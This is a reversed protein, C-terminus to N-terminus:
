INFPIDNLLWTFGYPKIQINDVEKFENTFNHYAKFKGRSIILMGNKEEARVPINPHLDSISKRLKIMNFLNARVQEKHKPLNLSNFRRRHLTRSTKTKYFSDYDNEDIMLNNFYFAPIGPLTLLVSHFLLFQDFMYKKDLLSLLTSNIEYVESNGKNNRFTFQAGRSKALEIIKNIEEDNLIGKVPPIPFGDHTSIVNLFYKDRIIKNLDNIWYSIKKANQNFLTHFLLLPLSVNYVIDSGYNLFKINEKFPVITETLLYVHPAIRDFIKRLLSVFLFTEEINLCSSNEKKWVYGIADLRLIEAGHQIYHLAVEIMEKLVMPNRYNLDVQRDSFTTWVDVPPNGNFSYTHFLPSSRPRFVHSWPHKNTSTIYYEKYKPDRELFKKFWEHSTSTHNLIIDVMLRHKKSIEDIHKWTGFSPDILKYNVVSFGEDGDSLFFPLIHVGTFPSNHLFNHLDLLPARGNQIHNPYMIVILDKQTFPIRSGEFSYKHLLSTILQLAEESKSPYLRQVIQKIEEM